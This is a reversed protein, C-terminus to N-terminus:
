TFATAPALSLSSPLRLVFTVTSFPLHTLRPSWFCIGFHSITSLTKNHFHRHSLCYLPLWLLQSLLWFAMSLQGGHHAQLFCELSTHLRLSTICFRCPNRLGFDALLFNECRGPIAVKTARSCATRVTSYGDLPTAKACVCCHNWLGAPARTWNCEKYYSIQSICM